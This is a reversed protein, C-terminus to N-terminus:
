LSVLLDPYCGGLHLLISWSVQSVYQLVHQGTTGSNYAIVFISNM